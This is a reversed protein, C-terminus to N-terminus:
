VLPELWVMGRSGTRLLDVTMGRAEAEKTIAQAVQEAGLSKAASDCSLYIKMPATDAETM